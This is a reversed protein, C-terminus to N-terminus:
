IQTSTQNLLAFIYSTSWTVRYSLARVTLSLCQTRTWTSGSEKEEGTVNTPEIHARAQDTEDTGAHNRSSEPVIRILCPPPPSHLSRHLQDVLHSSLETAYHQSPLRSSRPELGPLAMNKTEISFRTWSTDKQTETGTDMLFLHVTEDTGLVNRSSDSLVFPHLLDVMHSPLETTSHKYPLRFDM